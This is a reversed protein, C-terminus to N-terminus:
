TWGFNEANENWIEAALEESVGLMQAFDDYFAGESDADYEDDGLIVGAAIYLAMVRSEDTPLKEAIHNMRTEFGDEAFASDCAELIEQIQETSAEGEMVEHVIGVLMGLEDDGLEGDAVAALYASECIGALANIAAQRRAALPSNKKKSKRAGFAM